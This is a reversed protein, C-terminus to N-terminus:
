PLLWDKGNDEKLYREILITLDKAKQKSTWLEPHTNIPMYNFARIKDIAEQPTSFYEVWDHLFSEMGPAYQQLLYAGNRLVRGVRNSWYGFLHPDCSTGLVILSKSIVENIAEGYLPEHCIFNDKEWKDWGNGWVHIPTAKNIERLVDMRGRQNDYSGVYIIGYERRSSHMAPIAGDVCDFQFYYFPIVLKRFEEARGLEGSLYLDAEQAMLRHWDIGLDISDWVWYFVPAESTDRLAEIFRGDFFHHWKCIINIDAHLDAPLDPYINGQLVHERWEDRPIRVVTHGLEELSRAIHTEDAVEGSYGNTFNGVFNIIM